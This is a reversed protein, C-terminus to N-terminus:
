QRGTITRKGRSRFAGDAIWVREGVEPVLAPDTVIAYNAATVVLSEPLPRVADVTARNPTIDSLTVLIKRSVVEDGPEEVGLDEATLEYTPEAVITGDEDWIIAYVTQGVEYGDDESYSASSMIEEVREEAAALDAARLQAHAHGPWETDGSTNPDSDFISYTFKSSDNAM